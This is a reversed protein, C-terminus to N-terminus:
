GRYELLLAIQEKVLMLLPHLIQFKILQSVADVRPRIRSKNPLILAGFRNPKM